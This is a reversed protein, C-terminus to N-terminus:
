NEKKRAVEEIVSALDRIVANLANVIGSIPAHISGIISSIIEPKSPLAALENLKSKDYAINEILAVKLNPRKIKEYFKKIIKAPSVPDEYAFIVGTPGKLNELLKDAQGSFKGSSATELAKRILTNKMVKYDVKAEYLEDRFQNTEEVTLGTFDTLYLSTAKDLKNKIELVTQEKQKKNM